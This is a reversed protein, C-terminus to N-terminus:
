YCKLHTLAVESTLVLEEWRALQQATDLLVPTLREACV